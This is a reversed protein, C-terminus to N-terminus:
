KHRWQAEMAGRAASLVRELIALLVLVICAGAIAGRSTPQLSKFFLYDGGTFHLFPTMMSVTGTTLSGPTDM